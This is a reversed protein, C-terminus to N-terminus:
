LQGNGAKAALLDSHFAMFEVLQKDEQHSWKANACAFKMKKPLVADKYVL